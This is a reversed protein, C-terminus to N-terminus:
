YSTVSKGFEPRTGFTTSDGSDTCNWRNNRFQFQCESTALEIGESVYVITDPKKECIARQHPSFGLIHKCIESSKLGDVSTTVRFFINKNLNIEIIQLTRSKQM